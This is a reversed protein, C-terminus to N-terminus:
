SFVQKDLHTKMLTQVTQWSLFLWLRLNHGKIYVITCEMHFFEISYLPNFIDTWKQFYQYIADLHGSCFAFCRM